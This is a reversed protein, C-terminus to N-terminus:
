PSEARPLAVMVRTGQKPVSRARAVGGARRAIGYVTALGLGDGRSKTTFYPEFIRACTAEDMGAGDDEVELVISDPAVEDIVEADRVTLTIHGATEIADRSNLVLNLIIQELHSTDVGVRSGNVRIDTAVHIHSGAASRLLPLMRELVTSIEASDDQAERRHRGFALLQRTLRQGLQIMEDVRETVERLNPHEAQVRKFAGLSLSIVGLVNNFDHAVGCALRGLAEM